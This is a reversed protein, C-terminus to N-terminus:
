LFYSAALLVGASQYRFRDNDFALKRDTTYEIFHYSLGIRIAVDTNPRYYFYFDSNLSGFDQDGLLLLNFSTPRANVRTPTTLPDRAPNTEYTANSSQGMSFGVVDLSHGAGWDENFPYELFYGVNLYSAGTSDVKLSDINSEKEQSFFSLPWTPNERTIHAPATKYNLQSPSYSHSLRALVGVRFPSIAEIFIQEQYSLSVSKAQSLGLALDVKGEIAFSEVGLAFILVTM